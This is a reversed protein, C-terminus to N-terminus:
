LFRLGPTMPFARDLAEAEEKPLAFAGGANDRAHEPKEAKPIAFVSPDRTLFALAVQRPTKGLREAVEHLVRGGPSKLSPFGNVSGFPSYAVLALGNRKCWPLIDSEIGREELHYLVQNCVLRKAGLARKAEELEDVDFNSVGVFRTKGKDVLEAMARMTEAIPHEGTSWHLLYADLHDTGLRKLSAECADLTGKYSAHRPLVKSVLFIEDRLDGLAERIVQESGTYLEATDVHTMGLDAGVRLAEAALKRDRLQWTGQGIVPVDVGTWGFPRRIM